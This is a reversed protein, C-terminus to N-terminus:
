VSTPAIASIWSMGASCFNKPTHAPTVVDQRERCEGDNEVCDPVLPVGVLLMVREEVIHAAKDLGPGAEGGLVSMRQAHREVLQGQVLCIVM